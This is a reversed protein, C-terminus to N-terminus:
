ARGIPEGDADVLLADGHVLAAGTLELARVKAKLNGPLMVQGCAFPALYTADHEALARNMAHFFGSSTHPVVQVGLSRVIEVTRDTSGHDYVVLELDVGRQALISEITEAIQREGDLVSLAVLVTPKVPPEM